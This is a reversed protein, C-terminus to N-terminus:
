HPLLDDAIAATGPARRQNFVAVFGMQFRRDLEIKTACIVFEDRCV